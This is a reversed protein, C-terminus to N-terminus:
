NPLYSLFRRVIPMHNDMLICDYESGEPSKIIDLCEQGNEAVGFSYGRRTLLKCMLKRNLSSDDVVLIKRQGPSDESISNSETNLRSRDPSTVCRAEVVGVADRSSTPADDKAEASRLGVPFEVYFISGKEDGSDKSEVWINGEHLAVIGKSIYLGLGSGQGAQLENANFQQGEGFLKKQNVKSIGPGTDSVSFLISGMRVLGLDSQSNQASLFHATPLGHEVWRARVIVVSGAPSFKLANSLLNRLVQSLRISDGLIVLNALIKMQDAGTYSNDIDCDLTLAVDRKMADLKFSLIVGKILKWVDIPEVKLDMKGMEIKDYNLLDNLVDLAIETSSIIDATLERVEDCLPCLSGDTCGKKLSEEQLHLGQFCGCM